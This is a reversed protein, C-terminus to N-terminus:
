VVTKLTSDHQSSGGWLEDSLNEHSVVWGMRSALLRFALFELHTLDLDVGKYVARQALVDFKLTSGGTFSEKSRRRMAAAVRALLEVLRYPKAIYDDAENNLANVVTGLQGDASLYIIHTDLHESIASGLERGDGDPLAIDLIAVDPVLGHQILEEAERLSGTSIVKYGSDELARHNIRRLRANDELALVVGSM